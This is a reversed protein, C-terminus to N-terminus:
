QSIRFLGGITGKKKAYTTNLGCLGWHGLMMGSVLRALLALYKM